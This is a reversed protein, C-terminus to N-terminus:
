VLHVISHFLTVLVYGLVVIGVLSAVAMVRSRVVAPHEKTTTRAGTATNRVSHARITGDRSEKGEVEVTDGLHPSGGRLEGRLVVERMRGDPTTLTFPTVPVEVERQQPQGMRGGGSLLPALIGPLLARLSGFLLMLVGILLVFPLLVIIMMVVGVLFGLRAVVRALADGWTLVVVETRQAGLSTITGVLRGDARGGVPSSPAPRPAPAPATPVVPRQRPVPPAPSPPDPRPRASGGATGARPERHGCRFCVGKRITREGNCEPCVAANM